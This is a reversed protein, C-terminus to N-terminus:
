LVVLAKHGMVTSLWNMFCFCQSSFTRLAALLRVSLRSNLSAMFISNHAEEIEKVAANDGKKEAAMKKKRYANEIRQSDADAPVGLIQLLTAAEATTRRVLVVAISKYAYVGRSCIGCSQFFEPEGVCIAGTAPRLYSRVSHPDGGAAAKCVSPSSVRLTKVHRRVQPM